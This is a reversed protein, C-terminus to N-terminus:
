IKSNAVQEAYYVRFEPSTARSGLREQINILLTATLWFSVFAAMALLTHHCVLYCHLLLVHVPALVSADDSSQFPLGSILEKIALM